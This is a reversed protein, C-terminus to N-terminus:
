APVRADLGLTESLSLLNNRRATMRECIRSLVDIEAQATTAATRIREISELRTVLQKKQEALRLEVPLLAASTWRELDSIANKRVAISQEVLTNWFRQIMFSKELFVVNRPDACFEETKYALLELDKGAGALNLKAYRTSPLGFQRSLESYNGALTKQMDDASAAITAFDKEISRMLSRMGRTLGVTTWTGAIDELAGRWIQETRAPSLEGSLRNRSALLRSKVQRFLALAGNYRVKEAALQQWQQAMATAELNASGGLLSITSALEDRAAALSALSAQIMDGLGAAVMQAIIFKKRAILNQAIHKELAEIGSGRVLSANGTARGVLANRASLPFICGPLLRLARAIDLLLKRLSARMEDVSKLGDWVTDIKNLVVIRENSMKQSLRAWADMDSKSLGADASVMFLIAQAAPLTKLTLESEQGVTNLGPTDLITMGATLLPHPYNIIAYRWEPVDIITSEDYRVQAFDSAGILGLTAAETARMKRTSSLNAMAKVIASPDNMDIRIRSWMLTERKLQAISAHQNFTDISLLRLCPEQSKDHLIETPCMTTRGVNSPLLRTLGPVHLLANILESKGRSFEGVLALVLRESCIAGLLDHFQMTQSLELGGEEELWDRYEHLGRLLSDRWKEFGAFQESIDSHPIPSESYALPNGALQTQM